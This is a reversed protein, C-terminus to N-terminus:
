SKVWSPKWMTEERGFVPTYHDIELKCVTCVLVRWDKFAISVDALPHLKVCKLKHLKNVKGGCWKYQAKKERDRAYGAMRRELNEENPNLWSM